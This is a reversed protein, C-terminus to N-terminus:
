INGAFRGPNLIRNPDFRRKIERMLPLANSTCGWPDFTGRLTEPIQLAVVSGSSIALRARLRDIFTDTQGLTRTNTLAVTMLGYAQAVIEIGIQEAAAWQQVEAILACTESPLLSIKLVTADPESFLQERAQWVIESSEHLAIPSFIKELRAAQENLCEPRTAIRIEIACEREDARLQICSPTLQSDLMAHLPARLRSPESTVASWTRAHHELPHLRFNVWAIVGLTGFSGTMLKHLDYGAVNKVVKGGTKAITGDALVVTMGIILDRLPGYKLRLSGSDNAAVIGGVTAHQPWLPDLAVMQGHHALQAQMAAWTCGAEVSCTMDQWSHERVANMQALSLAIHPAVPNGWNLKTGSGIATVVLGNENAYRLIESIQQADAPAIFITQGRLRTHEYGAVSALRHMTEEMTLAAISM